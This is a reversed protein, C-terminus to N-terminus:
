EFDSPSENSGESDEGAYGPAAFAEARDMLRSGVDLLHDEDVSDGLSRRLRLSRALLRLRRGEAEVVRRLSPHVGAHTETRLASPTCGQGLLAPFGMHVAVAPAVAAARAPSPTVLEYTRRLADAAREPTWEAAAIGAKTVPMWRASTVSAHWFTPAAFTSPALAASAGAFLHALPFRAQVAAAGTTHPKVRADLAALSAGFGFEPYLDPSETCRRGAPTSLGLSLMGIRAGLNPSLIRQLGDADLASTSAAVGVDAFRARGASLLGDVALAALAATHYRQTFDFGPLDLQQVSPLDLPFVSLHSHSGLAQEWLLPRNLHSPVFGEAAHADAIDFLM